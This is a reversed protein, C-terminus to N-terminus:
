VADPMFARDIKAVANHHVILSICELTKNNRILLGFISRDLFFAGKILIKVLQASKFPNHHGGTIFDPNISLLPAM